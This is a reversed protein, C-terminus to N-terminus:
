FLRFIFYKLYKIKKNEIMSVTQMWISMGGMSLAYYSLMFKLCFSINLNSIKTIGGTMELLMNLIARGFSGINLIEGLLNILINFLIVIGLIVLLGTMCTKITEKFVTTFDNSTTKEQGVDNNVSIFNKRLIFAKTFNSLYSLLLIIVGIKSDNFIGIGVTGIVFLPNIFHTVCLLNSATKKSIMGKNLYENIFSASSPTGCIMSAIYITTMVDDFNFLLKFIKKIINPIIKHIGLKVLLLGLVMTPMLSPFIKLIFIKSSEIVSNIVIKSNMLIIIEILLLFYLIFLDKKSTM